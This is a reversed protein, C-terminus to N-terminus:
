KKSQKELLIALRELQEVIAETAIYWREMLVSQKQIEV